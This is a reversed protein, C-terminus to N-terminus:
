NGTNCPAQGTDNVAHIAENEIQTCLRHAYQRRSETKGHKAVHGALHWRLTQLATMQDRVRALEKLQDIRERKKQAASKQLTRRASRQLDPRKEIQVGLAECAEPYDLGAAEHLLWAASGSEGCSFCHFLNEEESISMGDSSDCYFCRGRWNGGAKRIDNLYHGIM